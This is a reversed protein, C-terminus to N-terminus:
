IRHRIEAWLEEALEELGVEHTSEETQAQAYPKEPTMIIEVRRNAARNQGSDNPCIPQHYAHASLYFREAPIQMQEILFETVECARMGSLEWNNAFRNSHVPVDDTHGVVNVVHPVQRIIDAIRELKQKAGPKLVVEGSDFLVDGALVIRVATEPILDVSAFDELGHSKLTRNSLEFTRSMELEVPQVYEPESSASPATSEMRTASEPETKKSLGSHFMYLTAFLVFMTMMVDSWPM